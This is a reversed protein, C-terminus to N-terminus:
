RSGGGDVIIGKSELFEIVQDVPMTPAFEFRHWEILDVETGTSFALCRLTKVKHSQEIQCRTISRYPFTKRLSGLREILEEDGLYIKVRVGFLLFIAWMSFMMVGVLNACKFATGFIPETTSRHLLLTILHGIGLLGLVSLLTLVYLGAVMLTLRPFQRLEVSAPIAWSLKVSSDARLQAIRRQRAAEAEVSEKTRIHPLVFIAAPLLFLLTSLLKLTDRNANALWVIGYKKGAWRLLIAGAAIIVAFAVGFLLMWTMVLLQRAFTIPPKRM